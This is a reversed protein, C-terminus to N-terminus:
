PLLLGYKANIRRVEPDTLVREYIWTYHRWGGLIKRAQAEGVLKTMAQLELDCVILHLYTSERDRAGIRKGFPADPYLKRFDAKAKDVDAERSNLYWHFQEHVFSALQVREDDPAGLDLTLVPHSHPIADQDIAIDRTYIWREVDYREVIRRLQEAAAQERPDGHATRIALKEAAHAFACAALLSAAAAIRAAPRAGLKTRIM